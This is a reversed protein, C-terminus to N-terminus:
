VSLDAVGKIEKRKQINEFMMASIWAVPPYAVLIRSFSTM